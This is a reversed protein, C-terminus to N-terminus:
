IFADFMKISAHRLISSVNRVLLQLQRRIYIYACRKFLVQIRLWHADCVDRVNSFESVARLTQVEM